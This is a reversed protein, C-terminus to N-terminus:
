SRSARFCNCCRSTQSQAHQAREPPRPRGREWYQSARELKRPRDAAKDKDLKQRDNEITQELLNLHNELDELKAQETRLDATLDQERQKLTEIQSKYMEVANKSRKLEFEFQTKRALDTEVSILSELTKQEELGNPIALQTRTITDRTDNLTDKLRRVDERSIRIRDVMLQTHYTDVSMRQLTQLAQRLSRVESLLEKMTDANEVPKAAQAAALPALALSFIAVRALRGFAGLGTKNMDIEKGGFSDDCHHWANFVINRFGINRKGPPSSRQVTGDCIPWLLWSKL